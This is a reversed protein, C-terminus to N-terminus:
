QSRNVSYFHGKWTLRQANLTGRKLWRKCMFTGKESTAGQGKSIRALVSSLIKLRKKYWNMMPVFSFYNCLVVSWKNFILRDLNKDPAVWVSEAHIVTALHYNLILLSQFVHLYNQLSATLSHTNTLRALEAIKWSYWPM